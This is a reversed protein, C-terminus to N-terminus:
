HIGTPPGLLRTLIRFLSDTMALLLVLGVIIAFTYGAILQLRRGPSLDNRKSGHEYPLWTATPELATDPWGISDRLYDRGPGEHWFKAAETPWESDDPRDSAVGFPEYVFAEYDDRGERQRLIEAARFRDSAGLTAMAAEVAKNVTHHSIGLERAITKSDQGRRVLRLCAKQRETLRELATGQKMMTGASDNGAAMNMGAPSRPPFDM